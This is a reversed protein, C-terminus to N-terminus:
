KVVANILLQLIFNAGHDAENGQRGVQRPELRVGKFGELRQTVRLAQDNM